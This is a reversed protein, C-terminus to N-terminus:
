TPSYGAGRLYNGCELADIGDLADGIAKCLTDFCRPAAGRVCAKIKAFLMEIPNLDPSYPPLFRLSAGRAEIAERAAANKHVNLNDCVVIDGSALTPALSQAVWAAFSTGNMAGPLVMPADIRDARLGAIFTNNGWHGHPAAGVCPEGRPSRGFRRTMKTDFGSEDIFVLRDHEM